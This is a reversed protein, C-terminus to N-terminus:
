TVVDRVSCFIVLKCNVTQLNIRKFVKFGLTRKVSVPVVRPKNTGQAEEEEEDSM